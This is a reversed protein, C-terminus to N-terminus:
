KEPSQLEELRVAPLPLGSIDVGEDAEIVRVVARGDITLLQVDGSRGMRTRLIQTYATVFRSAARADDWVIHWVLAHREGDFLLQYRDGDWGNALTESQLRHREMLLVSLEFQGLTNEHVNRWVADQSAGDTTTFTVHTPVDREGLFHGRPDMVQETSVPLLDEFPVAAPDHARLAHALGLGRVYPFAGSERMIRPASAMAPSPAGPMVSELPIRTLDPLDALVVPKGLVDEVSFLLMVLTAHGEIAASVAMNRDNGADHVRLSDLKFHQDQLAHVMEHAVVARLEQGLVDELLYLTDTRPVYYGAIEESLVSVALEQYDISDPMLGLLRYAKESWQLQGSEIEEEIEATLFARLEQRTRSAVNLPALAELGSLAEVRPLLEAVLLELQRNSARQGHAANSALVLACLAVSLRLCVAGLSM